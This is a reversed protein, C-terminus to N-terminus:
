TGDPPEHTHAACVAEQVPSGDLATQFVAEDTVCVQSPEEQAGEVAPVYEAVAEVVEQTKL